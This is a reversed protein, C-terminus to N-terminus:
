RAMAEKLLVRITESRSPLRRKHWERDLQEVLAEDMPTIIRPKETKEPEPKIKVM